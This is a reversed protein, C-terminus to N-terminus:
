TLSHYKSWFVEFEEDTMDINWQRLCVKHGIKRDIEDMIPSLFQCMRTTKELSDEDEWYDPKIHNLEIPINWNNMYCWLRAWNEVPIKHLEDIVNYSDLPMVANGEAQNINKETIM